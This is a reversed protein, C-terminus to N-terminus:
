TCPCRWDSPGFSDKDRFAKVFLNAINNARLRALRHESRARRDNSLLRYVGSPTWMEGTPNAFCNFGCHVLPLSGTKIGINWSSWNSQGTAQRCTYSFLVAWNLFGPVPMCSNRDINAEWLGTDNDVIALHILYVNCAPPTSTEVNEAWEVLPAAVVAAANAPIEMCSIM